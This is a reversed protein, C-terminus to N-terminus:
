KATEIKKQKLFWKYLEENDYTADWCNHNLEPYKTFKVNAGVEKLARVMIESNSVPVTYDKAGHFVWTPIDLLREAKGTVNRELRGCVPAIAAFLEPHEVAFCWTGWGGMSLGTLYVRSQDVKYTAMIEKTLAYLTEVDWDYQAPCQPSLVIFPFQQGKAILKPIGHDDVRALDDGRQGSGHLFILLPLDVADAYGQPLYLKYGVNVPTCITKEFKATTYSSQRSLAYSYNEDWDDTRFPMVPYNKNDLLSVEAANSFAYRVSVPHPVEPSTVHVSNEVIVANGKYFVKDSGALYVHDLTSSKVTDLHLKKVEENFSIIAKEGIITMDKYHPITYEISSFGYDKNLAINALRQAIAQKNKPHINNPNGVDMSVVMETNVIVDNALAQAERLYACYDVSPNGEGKGETQYIFPAVQVFYFPFDGQKWERRWTSILTNFLDKYVIGDKKNSEGQYWLVGKITFPILPKIMANYLLEVEYQPYSIENSDFEKVTYNHSLLPSAKIESTPLWAQATSGGYNSSILGIPVRLKEYIQDAFLYAVASFWKTNNPTSALWSGSCDLQPIIHHANKVNFLCIAPNNAKEIVEEHDLVGSYGKSISDVIMEMNSQGSCLWVEGVLVDKILLKSDNDRLTISYKPLKNKLAKPTTVQVMWHGSDDSVFEDKVGWSTEIVLESNPEAWGWFNVETDQQLVMRDSFIAPMKLNAGMLHVTLSVFILIAIKRM